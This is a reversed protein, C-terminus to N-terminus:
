GERVWRLIDILIDVPEKGAEKGDTIIAFADLKAKTRETNIINSFAQTLEKIQHDIKPSM